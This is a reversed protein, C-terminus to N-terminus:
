PNGRALDATRDAPLFHADTWTRSRGAAVGTLVWASAKPWTLDHHFAIGRVRLESLLDPIVDGHTCLVGVDDVSALEHALALADDGRSGEALRRDTEVVLGLRASLPGLTEICRTAPSAVLRTVTGAAGLGDGAGTAGCHRAVSEALATAQRRGKRSLTRREDDDGAGRSGADAHRVIYLKVQTPMEGPPTM